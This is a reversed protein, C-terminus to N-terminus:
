LKAQFTFELGVWAPLEGLEQPETVRQGRATQACFTATRHWSLHSGQEWSGPDRLFPDQSGGTEMQRPAGHGHQTREPSSVENIAVGGCAPRGCPAPSRDKSIRGHSRCPVAEKGHSKSFKPNKSHNEKKRTRELAAIVIRGPRASDDKRTMMRSTLAPLPAERCPVSTAAVQRSLRCCGWCGLYIPIIHASGPQM